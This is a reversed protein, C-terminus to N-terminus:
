RILWVILAIVIVVIVIPIILGINSKNVTDEKTETIEPAIQEPAPQEKPQQVEFNVGGEQQPTQIPEEM